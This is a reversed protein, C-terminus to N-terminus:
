RRKPHIKYGADNPCFIDLIKTGTDNYLTNAQM